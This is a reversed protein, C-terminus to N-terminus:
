LCRFMVCDEIPHADLDHVDVEWLRAGRLLAEGRSAARINTAGCREGRAVWVHFVTGLGTTM